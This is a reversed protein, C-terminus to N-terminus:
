KDSFSACNIVGLLGNMKDEYILSGIAIHRM